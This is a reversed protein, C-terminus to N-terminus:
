VSVEVNDDRLCPNTNEEFSAAASNLLCSSEQRLFLYYPFPLYRLLSPSSPSTLLLILINRIKEVFYLSWLSSSFSAASVFVQDFFLELLFVLLSTVLSEDIMEKVIENNPYAEQNIIRLVPLVFLNHIVLSLYSENNNATVEENVRRNMGQKAFFWLLYDLVFRYFREVLSQYYSIHDQFIIVSNQIITEKGINNTELAVDQRIAKEKHARSTCILLETLIREIGCSLIQQLEDFDKREELVLRSEQGNDVETEKKRQNSYKQFIQLFGDLENFFLCVIMADFFDFDYHCRDCNVISKVVVSATKKWSFSSSSSVPPSVNREQIYSSFGNGASNSSKAATPDVEPKRENLDESSTPTIPTVNSLFLSLELWENILLRGESRLKRRNDLLSMLIQDSDCGISYKILFSGGLHPFSPCGSGQESITQKSLTNDQSLIPLSSNSVTPSRSSLSSSASSAPYHHRILKTLYDFYYLLLNLDNSENVFIVFEHSSPIITTIGVNSVSRRRPQQESSAPVSASFLNSFSSSSPVSPTPLLSIRKKDYHIIEQDDEFLLFKILFPPIFSYYHHIMLELSLWSNSEMLFYLIFIFFTLGCQEKLFYFKSLFSLQPSHIWDRASLSSPSSPSASSSSLSSAPFLLDTIMKHIRPNYTSSSISSSLGANISVSSSSTSLPLSFHKKKSLVSESSTLDPSYFAPNYSHHSFSYGVSSSLSHRDKSSLFRDKGATIPSKFPSFLRKKPSIGPYQSVHSKMQSGSFLPKSPTSCHRAEEVETIRKNESEKAKRQQQYEEAVNTVEDINIGLLEVIVELLSSICSKWQRQISLIMLFDLHLLSSYKMIIANLIREEEVEAKKNEVIERKAKRETTEEAHIDPSALPSLSGSYNASIMSPFSPVLRFPLYNFYYPSDQIEVISTSTASSISSKMRESTSAAELLSPLPHSPVKESNTIPSSSSVSASLHGKASLTPSYPIMEVTLSSSSSSQFFNGQLMVYFSLIDSIVDLYRRIDTINERNVSVAAATRREKETFSRDKPQNNKSRGRISEREKGEKVTAFCIKLSNGQWSSSKLLIRKMEFIGKNDIFALWKTILKMMMLQHSPSSLSDKLHYIAYFLSYTLDFPPLSFYCNTDVQIVKPLYQSSFFSSSTSTTSSSASPFTFSSSHGSVKGLQKKLFSSSSSSSPEIFSHPKEGKTLLPLHNFSNNRSSQRSLTKSTYQQQKRLNNSSNVKKIRGSSSSSSTSSGSTTSFSSPLSSLSPALASFFSSANLFSKAFVALKDNELFDNFEEIDSRNEKEKDLLEERQKPPQQDNEEDSVEIEEGAEDTTLEEDDQQLQEQLEEEVTISVRERTIELRLEEITRLLYSFIEDSSLSLLYKIKEHHLPIIHTRFSRILLSDSLLPSLHSIKAPVSQIPLSSSSSAASSVSAVSDLSFLDSLSILRHSESLLSTSAEDASIIREDLRFLTQKIAPNLSALFVSSKLLPSDQLKNSLFCYFSQWKSYKWFLKKKKKEDSSSSSRLFLFCPLHDSPPQILRSKPIIRNRYFFQSYKSRIMPIMEYWVEEALSECVNVSSPLSSPL